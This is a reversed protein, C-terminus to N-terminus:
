KIYYKANLNGGILKGLGDRWVFSSLAGMSTYMPVFTDASVPYSFIKLVETKGATHKFGKTFHLVTQGNGYPDFVVSDSKTLINAGHSRVILKTQKGGGVESNLYLPLSNLVWNTDGTLNIDAIETYGNKLTDHQSGHFSIHPINNVLCMSPAAGAQGVNFSFFRNFIDEYGLNTLKLQVITGSTASDVPRYQIGVGTTVSGPAGFYGFPDLGVTGGYNYSVNGGVLLEIAPYPANFTAAIDLLDKTSTLQYVVTSTGGNTGNTIFSSPTTPPLISLQVAVTGDSAYIASTNSAKVVDNPPTYDKKCSTFILALMSTLVVNTGLNLYLNKKM